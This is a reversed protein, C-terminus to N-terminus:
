CLGGPQYKQIFSRLDFPIPAQKFRSEESCFHVFRRCLTEQDAKVAGLVGHRAALVTLGFASLLVMAYRTAILASRRAEDPRGAGLKQAVLVAAAIGFGDASLFCISEVSLLAQNAAM